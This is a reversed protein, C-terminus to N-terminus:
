SRIVYTGAAKDHWGQKKDDFIIWVYGLCLIAMSFYSIAFRILAKVPTIRQYNEDVVKMGLLKKGITSQWASSELFVFYAMTILQVWITNQNVPNDMDFVKFGMAKGALGVAANIIISDLLFAVFRRFFGAYRNYSVVEM